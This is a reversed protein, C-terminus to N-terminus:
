SFHDMRLFLMQLKEEKRGWVIFKQIRVRNKRNFDSKKKRYEPQQLSGKPKTHGYVYVMHAYIELQKAIISTNM